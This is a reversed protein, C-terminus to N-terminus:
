IRIKGEKIINQKLCKAYQVCMDAHKNWRDTQTFASPDIYLEKGTNNDIVKVAVLITDWSHVMM